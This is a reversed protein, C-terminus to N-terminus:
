IRALRCGIRDLLICRNVLLSQDEPHAPFLWFALLHRLRLHGTPDWRDQHQARSRGREGQGGDAGEAEVTNERQESNEQAGAGKFKYFNNYNRGSQGRQEMLNMDEVMEQKGMM